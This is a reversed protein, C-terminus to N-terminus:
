WAVMDLKEKLTLAFELCTGLTATGLSGDARLVYTHGIGLEAVGGRIVAVQASGDEDLGFVHVVSGNLTTYFVGLEAAPPVHGVNAALVEALDSLLRALQDRFAAYGLARDIPAPPSNSEQPLVIRLRRLVGLPHLGGEHGLVFGGPKLHYTDGPEMDVAGGSLLLLCADGEEDEAVVVYAVSGNSTKYFGGQELKLPMVRGEKPKIRKGYFALVGAFAYKSM